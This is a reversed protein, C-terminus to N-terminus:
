DNVPGILTAPNGAVIMESPVDKAVVSGAGVMCGEGLRVGKLILSNMGIFVDDEIVVPAVKGERPNNRREVANIPHFDTDIITSNAGISVRHGIRISSAVCISGGTMRFNDGIDLVASPNWTCLVVRHNAGLPNSSLTSRLSFGNGIIMKSGRSKLILPIGYIKWGARWQIGNMWFLIRNVPYVMWRNFENWAKWPSSSIDNISQKVTRRM